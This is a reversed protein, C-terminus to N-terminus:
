HPLRLDILVKGRRLTKSMESVVRDPLQQTALEALAKAFPQTM